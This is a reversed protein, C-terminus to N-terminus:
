DVVNVGACYFSSSSAPLRCRCLLPTDILPYYPFVILLCAPSIWAQCASFERGRVAQCVFAWSYNAVGIPQKANAYLHGRLCVSFVSVCAM